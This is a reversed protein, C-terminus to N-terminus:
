GSSATAVCKDCFCLTPYMKEDLVQRSLNLLSSLDADIWIVKKQATKFREEETERRLKKEEEQQQRREQGLPFFRFDKFLYRSSFFFFPVSESLIPGDRRPQPHTTCSLHSLKAALACDRLFSVSVAVGKHFFIEYWLQYPLWIRQKLSDSSQIQVWDWSNFTVTLAEKRPKVNSSLWKQLGNSM